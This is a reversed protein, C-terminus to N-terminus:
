YGLVAVSALGHSVCLSMEGPACLRLLSTGALHKRDQTGVTPTVLLVLEPRASAALRLTASLLAPGM